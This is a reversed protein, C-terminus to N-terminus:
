VNTKKFFSKLNKKQNTNSEIAKLFKNVVEKSPIYKNKEVMILSNKTKYVDKKNEFLEEHLKEGRRLGIVKIKIDGSKGKKLEYNNKKILDKVMEFINIPLGMKLIFTNGKEGLFPAQIVLNVADNITMFYRTAKKSTLTIPGGSDLQKKFIQLFSGSSGIVNGFRVSNYNLKLNHNNSYYTTFIEGIKKTQGMINKPRVAKDTSIFIFHKTKVKQCLKLVNNVGIINNKVSFNSNEEVIDVHKYASAHFVFHPKYLLFLSKLNEYSCVDVLHCKIIEKNKISLLALKLKSLNFENNDIIVIKKPKLNYIQFCIESGISGGGGTILIVKNQYNEIKFAKNKKLSTKKFNIDLNENFNQSKLFNTNYRFDIQIKFKKLFLSIEKQKVSSLSPACFFCKKIEFNRLEGLSIIKKDGLFQGIKNKDEDVYFNM